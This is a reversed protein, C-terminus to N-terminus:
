SSTSSLTPRTDKTGGQSRKHSSSHNLRLDSQAKDVSNYTSGINKGAPQSFKPVHDTKGHTGLPQHNAPGLSLGTTLLEPMNNDSNKFDGDTDDSNDWNNTWTESLKSSSEDTASESSLSVLVAWNAPVSQERM